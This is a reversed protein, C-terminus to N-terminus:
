WEERVYTAEGRSHQAIEVLYEREAEKWDQKFQQVDIRVGEYHGQRRAMWFALNEVCPWKAGDSLPVADTLATPLTPEVLLHLEVKEVSVWDAADGCFFLVGGHIFGASHMNPMFRNRWPVINFAERKDNAGLTYLNGGQVYVYPPLAHGDEFTTLPFTVEEVTSALGSSDKEITLFTLQRLYRNLQRFAAVDTSRQPDFSPHQDRAERIVDQPTFAM